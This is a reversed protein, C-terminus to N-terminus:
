QTTRSSMSDFADVAEISIVRLRQGPIEVGVFRWKWM